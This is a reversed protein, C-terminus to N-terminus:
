ILLVLLLIKKKKSHLIVKELTTLWPTVLHLNKLCLWSGKSSSEKLLDVAIEM